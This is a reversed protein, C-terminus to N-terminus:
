IWFNLDGFIIAVNRVLARSCTDRSFGSAKSNPAVADVMKCLNLFSNYDVAEERDWNCIHLGGGVGSIAM